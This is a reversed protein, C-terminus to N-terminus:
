KKVTESKNESGLNAKLTPQDLPLEVYFTTGVGIESEFWIKGNHARIIQKAIALGLGFTQEGSTGIRTENSYIDFISDKLEAPIGIGRDKVAILANTETQTLKVEIVSNEYSFKIANGILNSIVRWIKVTNVSLIVTTGHLLLQQNKLKAKLKLQDICYNLITYLDEPEKQLEEVAAGSQLLEGVLSLCDEASQKMLGALEKGEGNLTNKEIMMAILMDIAGIPSRLDHAVLKMLRANDEQSQELISLTRQLQENQGLVRKNLSTLSVVNTRSRKLSLWVMILIVIAMALIIASTALYLNKLQRDRKVMTMAHQQEAHKFSADMDASKLESTVAALSDRLANYKLMLHYAQDNDGISDFYRSQLNYLTNRLTINADNVGERLALNSELETIAERASAIRNTRLYLDALKAKATQADEIAYGPKNNIGISMKLYKEANPYDKVKIYLGGMNGYFVGKASEIYPKRKPYKPETKNIFALGEGYYHLASDLQGAREFSLGISNYISQPNIFQNDFSTSDSCHRTENLAQKFYPVAKLYHQQVFRVLGLKASFASVQCSDLKEKAFSHGQYYSEFAKDYRRQIRLVDGRAFLTQAYENKYPVETADANKYKVIELMSDVYKEAKFPKVDHYLYVNTYFNYKRWQDMPGLNPLTAYVSDLYSISRHIQGSNLFGNAVDLVSDTAATRNQETGSNRKCSLVSLISILVVALLFQRFLRDLYYM